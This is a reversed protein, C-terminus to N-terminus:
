LLFASHRPSYLQFDPFSNINKSSSMDLKDHYGVVRSSPNHSIKIQMQVDPKTERPDNRGWRAAYKIQTHELM